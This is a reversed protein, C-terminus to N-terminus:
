IKTAFNPSINGIKSKSKPWILVKTRELKSPGMTMPVAFRERNVATVLLNWCLYVSINSPSWLLTLRGYLRYTMLDLNLLIVTQKKFSLRDTPFINYQANVLTNASVIIKNASDHIKIELLSKTPLLSLGKRKRQIATCYIESNTFRERSHRVSHNFTDQSKILSDITNLTGLTLERFETRFHPIYWQDSIVSIM